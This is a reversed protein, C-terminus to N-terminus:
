EKFKFNQDVQFKKQYLSYPISGVPRVTGVGNVSHNIKEGSIQLTTDTFVWMYKSRNRSAGHQEMQRNVESETVTKITTAKDYCKLIHQTKSM